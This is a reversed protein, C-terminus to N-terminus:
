EGRGQYIGERTDDVRHGSPLTRTVGHMGAVFREWAAVREVADSGLIANRGALKERVAEVALAEPDKGEFAARERLKAEVDPPLSIRIAM